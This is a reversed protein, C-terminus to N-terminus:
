RSKGQDKAKDAAIEKAFRATNAAIREHVLENLGQGGPRIDAVKFENASGKIALRRNNDVMRVDIGARRLADEVHENQYIHPDNLLVRASIQEIQQRENERIIPKQRENEAKERKEEEVRDAALKNQAILKQREEERLRKEQEEAQLASKAAQEKAQRDEEAQKHAKEAREQAQQVDLQDLWEAGAKFGRLPMELENQRAKEKGLAGDQTLEAVLGFDLKKTAQEIKTTLAEVRERGERVAQMAQDLLQKGQEILKPDTPEGGAARMALEDLKAREAKAEKYNAQKLGESANLQRTLVEAEERGGANAIAYQIAEQARKNAQETRENAERVQQLLDANIRAQEKARWEEAGYGLPPVKGLTIERAPVTAVPGSLENLQDAAKDQRGYLQKMDEHQRM